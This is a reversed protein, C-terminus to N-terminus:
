DFAICLFCFLGLRERSLKIVALRHDGFLLHRFWLIATLYLFLRGGLGPWWYFVISPQFKGIYGVKHPLCWSRCSRCSRCARPISHQMCKQYTHMWAKRVLLFITLLSATKTHVSYTRFKDRPMWGHLWRRRCLFCRLSCLMTRTRKRVNSWRLWRRRCLFCRLSCLMTRKSINRWHLWRLFWSIM